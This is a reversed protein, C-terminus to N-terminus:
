LSTACGRQHALSPDFIFCISSSPSSKCVGSRIVPMCRNRNLRHFGAFVGIRFASSGCQRLPLSIKRPASSWWDHPASIMVLIIPGFRSIRIEFQFYAIHATRAYKSPVGRVLTFFESQSGTIISQSSTIILRTPSSGVVGQASLLSNRRLTAGGTRVM